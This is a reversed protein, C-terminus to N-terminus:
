KITLNYIRVYISANASNYSKIYFKCCYYRTKGDYSLLIEINILYFAGGELRFVVFAYMKQKGMTTSMKIRTM